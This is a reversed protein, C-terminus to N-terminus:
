SEYDCMVGNVTGAYGFNHGCKNCTYVDILGHKPCEVANIEHMKTLKPQIKNWCSFCLSKNGANIWHNRTITKHGDYEGCHGYPDSNTPVIVEESVLDTGCRDCKM